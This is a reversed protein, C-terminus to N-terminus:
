LFDNDQRGPLKTILVLRRFPIFNEYERIIVSFRFDCCFQELIKVLRNTDINKNYYIMRYEPITIEIANRHAFM